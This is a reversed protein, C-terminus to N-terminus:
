EGKHVPLSIRFVAGGCPHEEVSIKGGHEKIISQSISLGLGINHGGGKEKTTFFPDFIKDRIDPPVGPGTDRFEATSYRNGNDETVLTKIFISGSGGIADRANKLINLIVEMIQGKNGLVQPLERDFQEVIEIARTKIESTFITLTGRVAENLFMPAFGAKSPRSYTLMDLIIYKSRVAADKIKDLLFYSPNEKGLRSMLVETISLIGALPSNLEHAIGAGMEGLSVLKASQILRQESLQLRGYAEVLDRLSRDLESTRKQVTGELEQVHRRITEEFGKRESIDRWIEQVCKRDKLELVSAAVEVPVTSGDKRRVLAEHLYGKGEATWRSVAERYDAIAPAEYLSEPSLGLLEERSYGLLRSAAPNAEVYKMTDLDILVIVDTAANVLKSYKESLDRIESTSRLLTDAMRDFAEGVLELEDGTKIGVRFDLRGESLSEAAEKLRALPALMRRHVLALVALSIALLIGGGLLLFELNHSAIIEEYGKLSVYLSVAVSVAGLVEGERARHCSLCGREAFVPRVSRAVMYGKEVEYIGTSGKGALAMRDIEDVPGEDLEVGYQRDIAEGHMVRLDEIGPLQRYREIIAKNEARGGGLRMSIHLQEFIAASLKGAEGLAVEELLTSSSWRDVYMLALLGAILITGIYLTFRKTLNIRM